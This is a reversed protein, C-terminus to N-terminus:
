RAEIVRAAARRDDATLNESPGPKDDPKGCGCHM